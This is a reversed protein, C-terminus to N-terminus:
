RKTGHTHARHDMGLVGVDGCHVEVVSVKLDFLFVTLPAQRWGVRRATPTPMSTESSHRGRDGAGVGGGARWAGLLPPETSARVQRRHVDVLFVAVVEVVGQLLGAVLVM